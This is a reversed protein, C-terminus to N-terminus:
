KPPIKKNVNKEKNGYFKLELNQKPVNPTFLEECTIDTSKTNKETPIPPIM